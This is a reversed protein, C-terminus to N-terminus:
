QLLNAVPLQKQLLTILPQWGFLVMDIAAEIKDAEHLSESPPLTCLETISSISSRSAKSPNRSVADAAEHWKSPM